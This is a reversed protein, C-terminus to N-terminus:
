AERKDIIQQVEEGATMMILEMLEENTLEEVSKPQWPVHEVSELRAHMYPAAARAMDDRRKDSANPDCMVRLMYELPTEAGSQAIECRISENVTHKSGKPRGAGPRQGGRPM